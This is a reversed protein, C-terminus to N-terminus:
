RSAQWKQLAPSCLIGQWLLSLHNLLVLDYSSNVDTLWIEFFTSIVAIEQLIHVIPIFIICFLTFQLTGGPKEFKNQSYHISFVLSEHKGHSAGVRKWYTWYLRKTIDSTVGDGTIAAGSASPSFNSSCWKPIKSTWGTVSSDRRRPNLEAQGPTM